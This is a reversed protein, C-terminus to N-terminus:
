NVREVLDQKLFEGMVDIIELPDQEIIKSIELIDNKGDCYCMTDFILRIRDEVPRGPTRAPYLGRKGLQPECLVKLKYKYNNELVQLCKKVIDLGGSLGDVSIFNMDDFSTHYESYDHYKTRMISVVPLDVGPMCYQREDSGRNLYSFEKFNPAHFKFVRSSVSDALTDHTRSHLLSYTNNDGICTLVFGAVVRQQLEELNKSLYVIAGITEPGFLFRYTYRREPLSKLWTILGLAVVPGSLENNAMSPHCIYTSILIEDQNHEAHTANLVFEGYTLSGSQLKSDIFVKYEGPLLKERQSHAICFGWKKEYYSTVYPIAHPQEPLSYLHDQLEDLNMTENIPISYGVVHLNSNKFSCIKNGAPDIIYADKINWEDPVEWDFAKTGSPVENVNIEPVYEKLIDLTSRVGDGTISRCIPFLREAINYLDQPSLKQKIM